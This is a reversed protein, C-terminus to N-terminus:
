EDVYRPIPGPHPTKRDSLDFMAEDV